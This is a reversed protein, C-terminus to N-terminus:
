PCVSEAYSTTRYRQLEIRDSWYDDALGCKRKLATLFQHPDPLIEWAKPLLTACRGDAIIVLGDTGPALRGLLDAEDTAPISELASLVAVELRIAGLEDQAVPDFRRDRFAAQFASHTVDKALPHMAELAGCCGRLEGGLRLTTFTAAPETLASPLENCDIPLPKSHVLGYEISGRALRLLETGPLDQRDPSQMREM